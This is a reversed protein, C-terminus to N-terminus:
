EGTLFPVDDAYGRRVLANLKNLKAAQMAASARQAAYGGGMLAAQGVPGGFSGIHMSVVASIPSNPAFKGLYRLANEMSSGRTISNIVAKEEKSFNGFKGDSQRIKKNLARFEQRLATQMGAQSYNAGVKDLANGQIDDLIKAKAQRQWLARAKPIAAQAKALDGGAIDKASLGNWWDDIYQSVKGALRKDNPNTGKFAEGARQRHLDIDEFSYTRGEAKPTVGTVRSMPDVKPPVVRDKYISEAAHYAQPHFDRSMNEKTALHRIGYALRNYAEPTIKVGADEAEKYIQQSMGKLDARTPVTTVPPTAQVRPMQAGLGGRVGPLALGIMTPYGLVKDPAIANHIKEAWDPMVSKPKDEEQDPGTLSWPAPSASQQPGTLTWEAM